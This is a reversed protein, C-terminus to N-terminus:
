KFLIERLMCQNHAIFGVVDSYEEFSVVIGVDKAELVRGEVISGIEFGELWKLGSSKSGSLQLKTIQIFSHSLYM